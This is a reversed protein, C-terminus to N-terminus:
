ARVKLLRLGNAIVVMSAGMDALVAMWLTATGAVALALFAVKLALSFAINTKINRVTARSLRVLFPVKGLDDAMLAVDATELAAHSGAAGMAVGVDSAALAPADNVGDGVMLIGGYQRRLEQVATVKDEPLLGARLETIGAERAIARATAEHDGTLMVIHEIGAARLREVAGGVGARLQDAVGIVGVIDGGAALLVATQGRAALAELRDHVADNCLGREEFLRHSGLLLVAGDVSAEAGRGPLAHFRDPVTLEVGRERAHRVIAHGIPHESHSEVSAALSLVDRGSIGGVPVVEHVEPRGNTLTGTKDFAICRISGVRELHVGGKVLVGERAAAALASVISVPTSIVLACPCSIVLLVLARYIWADFPQALAVPPVTAVLAAMVLVAPTYYRAFRDVFAQAPARQAQAREVLHIIRAITSDRGLHTVRVQLAAHGNISGAFVQDGPQRLVPMSEGTVPAQNVDSEGAVVEGDLAIKEGPRVVIVEGIEVRDVPVRHEHGHRRVTVDAPALDMLTRIARRARDMSRTELLQALAFLFVVTAGEVWEGILIAGTVAVTMLVNIDLSLARAARWARPLVTVAGSAIALALALMALRRDIGAVQVAAGVVLAAGSLTVSWLRWRTGEDRVPGAEDHDVWARMGTEAVAAAIASAPLRSLDHLVRMQQGMVDASLGHVGPLRNLQRELLAVEEHCDMGSVRFITEAHQECMPCSAAM